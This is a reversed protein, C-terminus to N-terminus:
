LLVQLGHVDNNLEYITTIFRSLEFDLIVNRDFKVKKKDPNKTNCWFM